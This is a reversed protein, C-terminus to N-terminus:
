VEFFSKLRTLFGARYEEARDGAAASDAARAQLLGETELQRRALLESLRPLLEPDRAVVEAFVPKTIELVECDRLAVVSARRPEGTLLSMEGFCDGRRLTAVQVSSGNTAAGVTVAAEGRTLVFMSAGAAGERIIPEGRGYQHLDARELLLQLHEDSTGEFMAQGRLLESAAAIRQAPDPQRGRHAPAASREIQVTRIPFPIRIGARQLAYWCNTAISDVAQTYYRHDEIWFRVEYVIASDGFTKLFVNPAPDDSIVFKATAAANALLEKVRNPPAGYEVGIDLRMAHKGGTDGHYNIVPARVVHLNPVDLRVRDNTMFRTSRWNIEIVQAHKSEIFLWDGVEFPRGFQLAFGAIVNGLTDQMAFGLVIGVVSSGAVLGGIPLSYVGGLVFLVAFFIILVASVERIMKPVSAHRQQVFFWEWFFHDLPRVLSLSGLVICAAVLHQRAPFDDPLLLVTAVYPGLALCFLHYSVGLRLGSARKFLAGLM